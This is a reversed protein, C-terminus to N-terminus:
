LSNFDHAHAAACRHGFVDATQAVSLLLLFSWNSISVTSLSTEQTEQARRRYYALKAKNIPAGTKSLSFSLFFGALFWFATKINLLLRWQPHWNLSLDDFTNLSSLFECLNESWECTVFLMMLRRKLSNCVFCLAWSTESNDRQRCAVLKIIIELCRKTIMRTPSSHM